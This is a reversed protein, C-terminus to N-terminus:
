FGLDDEMLTVWASPPANVWDRPAMGQRFGGHRLIPVSTETLSGMRSNHAIRVSQMIESSKITCQATRRTGYITM